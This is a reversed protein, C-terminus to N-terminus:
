LEQRRFVLWAGALSAAVLGLSVYVAAWYRGGVTMVSGALTVLHGPLYRGIQPAVGPIALVILLAFALGGAAAPNRMIVSCLLTLSVYVMLFLLLLGNLALWRGVDMPEFLLYTYYYAGAGALALGAAFTILLATFKAALFAWRPLPKVLMMAATGREKEQAVAGMSVLLALIVGFQSINELYQAVADNVTPPPILGAFAEAEPLAGIIEPLYRAMLPSLLGFIMLVAAVVLQRRTRWQELLEKRLAVIFIRM